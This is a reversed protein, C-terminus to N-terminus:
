CAAELAHAAEIVDEALPVPHARRLQASTPAFARCRALHHTEGEGVPRRQRPTHHQFEQSAFAHGSDLEDLAAAVGARDHQVAVGADYNDLVTLLRTTPLTRMSGVQA